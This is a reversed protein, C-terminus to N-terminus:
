FNLVDNRRTYLNWNLMRVLMWNLILCGYSIVGEFDNM